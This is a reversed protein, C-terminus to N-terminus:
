KKKSKLISPCSVLYFMSNSFIKFFVSLSFPVSFKLTPYILLLKLFYLKDHGQTWWYFFFSTFTFNKQSFILNNTRM